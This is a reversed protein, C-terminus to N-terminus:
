VVFRAELWCTPRGASILTTLVTKVFRVWLRCVDFRRSESPVTRVATQVIQGTDGNVSQPCFFLNWTFLLVHIEVVTTISSCFLGSLQYLHAEEGHTWHPTVSKPSKNQPPAANKWVRRQGERTRTFAPSFVVMTNENRGHARAM